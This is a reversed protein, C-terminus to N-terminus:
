FSSLVRALEKSATGPNTLYRKVHKTGNKILTTQLDKDFIIKKINKDIDDKYSISLMSADKEFEFKYTRVDLSINLIPKELILGELMVTSGYIETFINIMVDCEQIDDLISSFQKIVIRQDFEQIFKKMQINNKQLSPHLKVIFSINKINGLSLFIKKLVLEFRLFLETNYIANAEDLMQLTILVRSTPSSPNNQKNHFFIDHRPSGSLIIREDSIEHQKVLYNKQINGWLAIKDKFVPYMNGIDYLSLESVYNTFAHELLISQTHTNSGLIAKETEGFINVSMICKPNIERDIKKSFLILRLYESIRQKYTKLLIKEIIPWISTGEIEFVKSFPKKNKWLEDLKNSYELSSSLVINKENKSLFSNPTLIKCNSKKLFKLTKLNWFAPKRLNILIVDNDFKKFNFLLEHYWETNLEILLIVSKKTKPNFFLGFINGMIKEFTNKMMEYKKRSIKLPLNKGYISIPLTYKEFRISFEISSNEIIKIKTSDKLFLKVISSLHSNIYIQLFKQKELIRKIIIFRYIERILLNHFESTDFLSLINFEKFELKPILKDNYWYYLSTTYKFINEHDMNNLFQDAVYHFIKKKTLHKHVEVDFTFIDFKEFDDIPLKKFDDINELFIANERM